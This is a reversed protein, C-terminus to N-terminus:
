LLYHKQSKQTTVTFLAEPKKEILDHGRLLEKFEIKIKEEM